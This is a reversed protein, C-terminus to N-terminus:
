NCSVSYLCAIGPVCCPQPLNPIPIQLFLLLPSGWEWGAGLHPSVAGRRCGTGALMEWGAGRLPCCPSPSAAPLGAGMGETQLPCEPGALPPPAGGAGASGLQWRGAAPLAFAWRGPVGTPPRAAAGAVAASLLYPSPFTHANKFSVCVCM